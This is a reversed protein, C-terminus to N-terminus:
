KARLQANWKSALASVIHEIEEDVERDVLTRNAKFSLSIAISKKGAGLEPGEYVDFVEASALLSGSERISAILSGSPVTKEVVVALDREVSPYRSVPAYRRERATSASEVLDPWMIEAFYVPQEIDFEKRLGESVAAALGIPAGGVVVSLADEMVGQLSASPEYGLNRVGL